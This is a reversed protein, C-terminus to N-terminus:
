AVASRKREFFAVLHKCTRPSSKSFRWSPCTCYVDSRDRSLRVEYEVGPRSKSKVVQLVKPRDMEGNVDREIMPM